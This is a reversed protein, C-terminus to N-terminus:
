LCRRDGVRADSHGVVGQLDKLQNLDMHSPTRADGHIIHRDQCYADTSYNLPNMLFLRKWVYVCMYVGVLVSLNASVHSCILSVSQVKLAEGAVSVCECGCEFVLTGAHRGVSGAM